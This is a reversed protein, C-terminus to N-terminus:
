EKQNIIVAKYTVIGEKDTIEEVSGKFALRTEENAFAITFKPPEGQIYQAIGLENCTSYGRKQNSLILYDNGLWKQQCISFIM